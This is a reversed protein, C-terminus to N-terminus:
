PLYSSNVGRRVVQFSSQSCLFSFIIVPMLHEGVLAPLQLGGQQVTAECKQETSSQQRQQENQQKETNKGQAFFVCEAMMRESVCIYM